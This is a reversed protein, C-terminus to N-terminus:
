KRYKIKRKNEKESENQMVMTISNSYNFMKDLLKLTLGSPFLFIMATTCIGIVLGFIFIHKFYYIGVIGSIILIFSFIDKDDIEFKGIKM